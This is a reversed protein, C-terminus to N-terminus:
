RFWGRSINPSFQTNHKNNSSISFQIQSKACINQTWVRFYWRLKGLKNWLFVINYVVNYCQMPHCSPVWGKVLGGSIQPIYVNLLYMGPLHFRIHTFPAVCQPLLQQKNWPKSFLLIHTVLWHGPTYILFITYAVTSSISVRM